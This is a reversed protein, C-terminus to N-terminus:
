PKYEYLNIVASTDTTFVRGALARLSSVKEEVAWKLLEGAEGAKWICVTKDASGTATLGEFCSLGHVAAKHMERIEEVALKKRKLIM